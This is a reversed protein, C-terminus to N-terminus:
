DWALGQTNQPTRQSVPVPKEGTGRNGRDTDNWWHGVNILENM